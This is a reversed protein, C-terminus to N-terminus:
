GFEQGEIMANGGSALIRALKHGQWINIQRKKGNTPKGVRSDDDDEARWVCVMYNEM